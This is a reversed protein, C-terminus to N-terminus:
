HQRVVRSAAIFGALSLGMDISGGDIEYLRLSIITGRRFSSELASSLRFPIVCGQAHCSRYALKQERGGDIRMEAGKAVLLDLPTLFFFLRNSADAAESVLQVAITRGAATDTSGTTSMRCTEDDGTRDCVVQWDDALTIRRESDTQSPESGLIDTLLQQAHVVAPLVIVGLLAAIAFALRITKKVGAAGRPTM